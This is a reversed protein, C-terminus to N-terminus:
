RSRADNVSALVAIGSQMRDKVKDLTERMVTADIGDLVVALAKV